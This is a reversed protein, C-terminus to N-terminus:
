LQLIRVDVWDGDCNACTDELRLYKKLYPSYVLECAAFRGEVAAMTLPDAYTGTGSAVNNRGGCNYAVKNSPPSNDPWGYFTMTFGSSTECALGSAVVSALLTTILALM